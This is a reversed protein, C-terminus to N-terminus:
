ARELARAVATRGAYLGPIVSAATGVLVAAALGAAVAPWPITFRPEIAFAARDLHNSLAAMYLGHALGLAAGALGLILGEAVVLRLVMGRGAGVGRLIAISRGRAAVNSMMLNVVGLGAALCAVGAAFVVWLVAGRFDRDILRKLEAMTVTKAFLSELALRVRQIVAEERRRREAEPLDEPLDVRKPRALRAAETLEWAAVRLLAAYDVVDRARSARLAFSGTGTTPATSGPALAAM